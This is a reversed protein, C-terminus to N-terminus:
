RTKFYDIEKSLLYEHQIEAIKNATTLSKYLANISGGFDFNKISLIDNCAVKVWMQTASSITAMENSYKLIKLCRVKYLDESVDKTEDYCFGFLLRIIFDIVLSLAFEKEFIKVNLYDLGLFGLTRTLDPSVASLLPIPLSKATRVDTRLHICEKLLATALATLGEKKDIQIREIIKNFMKKTSAKASLKDIKYPKGSVSINTGSHIHYSTVNFLGNTVTVTSTMINATGFILGLYPDHGLTKFRHNFGSLKPNRNRKIVDEKQIADFPVPNSVIEDISAYYRIETRNSHEELHGLTKEAAEQDDLREKFVNMLVQRASQLAIALALFAMDDNTLSTYREFAENTKDVFDPFEQIKHELSKIKDELTKIQVNLDEDSKRYDSWLEKLESVLNEERETAM